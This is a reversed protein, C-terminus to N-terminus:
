SIARSPQRLIYGGAFVMIAVVLVKLETTMATFFLMYILSASMTIMAVVKARLPIVGHDHWDQLPPGFTPHHYLWDHFRRSSRAFCWLAALMLPVTPLGPVVVGVAGIGVFLWGTVFLLPRM